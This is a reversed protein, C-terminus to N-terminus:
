SMFCSSTTGVLVEQNSDGNSDGLAQQFLALTVPLGAVATSESWSVTFTSGETYVPDDSYDKNKGAPSPNIFAASSAGATAILGLTLLSQLALMTTSCGISLKSVLLLPPRLSISM